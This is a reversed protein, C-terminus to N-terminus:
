KKENKNIFLSAVFSEKIEVAKHLCLEHCCFCGICKEKQIVPKTKDKNKVIAKVPCSKMCQLCGVCKSEIINPKVWFLRGAYKTVFRAFWSPLLTLFKTVPLKTKSFNFESVDDGIYIMNQLNTDGLKKEKLPKLLVNNRSKIGMKDLLFTDLMVTDQSGAIIGYNRKQGSLSPGNGELGYVGDVITFLLKERIMRYIESLLLSFDKPTPALKHYEAKRVGPIIGYFNKVGCTFGMFTHTKLKPINIIADCDTIAKTIYIHKVTPHQVSVDICGCAEFNVLEVNEEKALQLMGTKEWIHEIGKTLNGPSDGMVPVAGAKKIINIVARVIEPHTTIAQEPNYASLLNLKILIKSNPKIIDNINGFSKVIKEVINYVNDTDYNDCRYASVITKLM